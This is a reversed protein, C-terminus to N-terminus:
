LYGELSQRLSQTFRVEVERLIKRKKEDIEALLQQREKERQAAEGGGEKGRGSLGGRFLSICSVKAHLPVSFMPYM